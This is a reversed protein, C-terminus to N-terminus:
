DLVEYWQQLGASLDSTNELCTEADSDGFLSWTQLSWVLSLTHIEAPTFCGGIPEPFLIRRVSSPSADRLLDSCKNNTTMDAAAMLGSDHTERHLSSLICNELEWGSKAAPPQSATNTVPWVSSLTLKEWGILGSCMNSPLWSSPVGPALWTIELNKKKVLINYKVEAWRGSVRRSLLVTSNTSRM